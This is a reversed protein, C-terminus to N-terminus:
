TVTAEVTKTSVAEDEGPPQPPSSNSVKEVPILDSQVEKVSDPNSASDNQVVENRVVVEQQPIPHSHVNKDVPVCDSSNDQYEVSNKELPNLSEIGVNVSSTESSLYPGESEISPSDPKLDESIGTDMYYKPSSSNRKTKVRPM